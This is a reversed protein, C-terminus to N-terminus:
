QRALTGRFSRSRKRQILSPQAAELLALAEKLGEIEAQRRAAREEYTAPKPDCRDKLKSLYESVAALEESSVEKDSSLEALRTQLGKVESTIYKVATDKSAKAVKNEQSMREYASQGYTEDAELKALSAAADSECQELISIIADGAKSSKEYAAPKAPQQMFVSFRDDQILAASGAGSGSGYFDRLIGLARRISVMAEQEDAKAKVYNEHDAQRLRDLEAQEKAMSALDNELEHIQQKNEASKSSAQDYQSTLKEIKDELDSKKDHTKSM